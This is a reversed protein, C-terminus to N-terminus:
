GSAKASNRLMQRTARASSLSVGFRPPGTIFREKEEEDDDEATVARNAASASVAHPLETDDPPPLPPPPSPPAPDLTATVVVVAVPPISHSPSQQSGFQLVETDLPPPPIWPLPPALGVSPGVIVASAIAM